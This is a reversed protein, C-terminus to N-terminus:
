ESRVRARGAAVFPCNARPVEAGQVLHAAMNLGTNPLHPLKHTTTPADTTTTTTTPNTKPSSFPHSVFQVGTTILITNPKTTQPSLSLSLSLSQRNLQYVCYKCCACLRTTAISSQNPPPPLPHLHFSPRHKRNSRRFLSTHSSAHKPTPPNSQNGIHQSWRTLSLKQLSHKRLQTQTHAHTHATVHHCYRHPRCVCVFFDIPRLQLRHVIVCHSHFNHLVMDVLTLRDHRLDCVTRFTWSMRGQPLILQILDFALWVVCM